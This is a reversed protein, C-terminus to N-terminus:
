SLKRPILKPGNKSIPTQGIASFGKECKSCVASGRFRTGNEPDGNYANGGCFPCKYIWLHGESSNENLLFEKFDKM